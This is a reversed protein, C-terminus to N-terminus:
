SNASGYIGLYTSLSLEITALFVDFKIKANEAIWIQSPAFM